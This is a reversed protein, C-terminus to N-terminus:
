PTIEFLASLLDDKSIVGSNRLQATKEAAERLMPKVSARFAEPTLDTIKVYLDEIEKKWEM